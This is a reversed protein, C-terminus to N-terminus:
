APRGPQLADRLRDGALTFSLVALVLALGPFLAVWWYGSLMVRAGEALMIGWEAAPPRVGIGLFSLGAANLMAWGINVTAQVAILPAIDPLVHRWLVRGGGNGAVLAAEVWASGRRTRVADRTLRMYLPLNVLATALIVTAVSGGLAAVLAMALVFLPFATLVEALRSAVADVIGGRWGIAAGAGCGAAVSLAVAALAIGLDLRAAALVRSLVDRGLADTGFWHRASPPELLRLADSALPDHPALWPGAVALLLVPLV